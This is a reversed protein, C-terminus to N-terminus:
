KDHQLSLKGRTSVILLAVSDSHLDISPLVPIPVHDESIKNKSLPM